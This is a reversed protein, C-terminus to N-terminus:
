ISMAKVLHKSPPNLFKHPPEEMKKWHLLKKIGLEFNIPRNPEISLEKSKDFNFDAKEIIYITILTM